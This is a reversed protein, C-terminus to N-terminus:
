EGNRVVTIVIAFEGGDVSEAACNFTYQDWAGGIEGSVGTEAQEVFLQQAANYSMDSKDTDTRVSIGGGRLSTNRTMGNSELKAAM